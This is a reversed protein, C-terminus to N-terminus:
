YIGTKVTNGDNRWSLNDTEQEVYNIVGYDTSLDFLVFKRFFPLTFPTGFFNHIEAVLTLIPSEVKMKVERRLVKM